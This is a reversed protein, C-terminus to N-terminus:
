KVKYGFPWLEILHGRRYHQNTQDVLENIGGDFIQFPITQYNCFTKELIPLSINGFYKSMYDYTEQLIFPQINLKKQLAQIITYTILHNGLRGKSEIVFVSANKSGFNNINFHQCSEEKSECNEKDCFLETGNCIDNILYVFIIIKQLHM